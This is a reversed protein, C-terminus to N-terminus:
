GCDASEPQGLVVAVDGRQTVEVELNRGTLHEAYEARVAGALRRRDPEQEPQDVRTGAPRLDETQVATAVRDGGMSPQRINRALCAQPRRQGAGLRQMQETLHLALDVLWVAVLQDLPEVQIRRLLHPGVGLAIPLLQDQDCRQHGPGVQQQEVFRGAPEVWQHLLGEAMADMLRLFAVLRDEQGRVDEALDLCQTVPDPDQSRAPEDVDASQGIQAM